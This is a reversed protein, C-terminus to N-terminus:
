FFRFPNVHREASSEIKTVKGSKNFHVTEKKFSSIWYIWTRNMMYKPTRHSPPLGYARFVAIKSMGASITGEDVNNKEKKSFHEMAKSPNKESFYIKAYEEITTDPNHKAIFKITFSRGEYVSKKDIVAVNIKKGSLSIKVKTGVSVIGGVHYNTSRMSTPKELWINAQTYVPKNALKFSKGASFSPVALIFLLMSLLFKNWQNM